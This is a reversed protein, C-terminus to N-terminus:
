MMTFCCYYYDLFSFNASDLQPSGEGSGPPASPISLFRAGKDLSSLGGPVARGQEIGEKPTQALRSLTDPHDNHRHIIQGGVISAQNQGHGTRRPM